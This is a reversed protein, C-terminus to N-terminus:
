TRKMGGIDLLGTNEYCQQQLQLHLDKSCVIIRLRGGSSSILFCQHKWARDQALTNGLRCTKNHNRTVPHLAGVGVVVGRGQGERHAGHHTQTRYCTPRHFALGNEWKGQPLHGPCTFGATKPHLPLVPFLSIHEPTSVQTFSKWPCGERRGKLCEERSKM